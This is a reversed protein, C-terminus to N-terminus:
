ALALKLERRSESIVSLSSKMFLGAIVCGVIADPWVSHTMNVLGAALLVGINAVIDNRSCLWTSRMNVDDSRHRFLLFLCALNAALALSGIIGMTEATPSLGESFRYTTQAFVFLGFGAMVLGKLLGAKARWAAGKHLVFLSFGYVIADGLMDLSDATLASSHSIMGSVFEVFFMAANICLVVQLVSKQSTRLQEIEFSKNECCSKSM